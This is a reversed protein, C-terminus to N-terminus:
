VVRVPSDPKMMHFGRMAGCRQFGFLAVAGIVAGFVLAAVFSGALVADSHGDDDDDNDDSGDNAGQPVCQRRSTWCSGDDLQVGENLFHAPNGRYALGGNRCVSDVGARTPLSSSSDTSDAILAYM